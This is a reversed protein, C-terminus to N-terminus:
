NNLKPNESHIAPPRPGLQSLLDDLPSPERAVMIWEKPNSGIQEVVAIGRPPTWFPISGTIRIPKDDNLGSQLLEALKDLQAENPNDVVVFYRDDPPPTASEKARAERRQYKAKRYCVSTCYKQNYYQPSEFITGCFPCAARVIAQPNRYPM